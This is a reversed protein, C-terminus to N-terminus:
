SPSARLFSKLLSDCSFSKFTKFVPRIFKNQGIKIIKIKIPKFRILSKPKFLKWWIHDNRNYSLLTFWIGGM